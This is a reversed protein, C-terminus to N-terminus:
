NFTVQVLIARQKEFYNSLAIAANMTSGPIKRPIADTRQNLAHKMVTFLVHMVAALRVINKDDKSNAAGAAGEQSNDSEDMHRVYVHLAEDSFSYKVQDGTNHEGYIKDYIRDFSSLNSNKLIRSNEM